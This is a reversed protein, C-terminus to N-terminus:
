YPPKNEKTEISIMLNGMEKILPNIPPLERRTLLASEVRKLGKPTCKMRKSYLAPSSKRIHLKLHGQTDALLSKM